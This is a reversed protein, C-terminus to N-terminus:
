IDNYSIIFLALSYFYHLLPTFFYSVAFLLPRFVPPLVDKLGGPKYIFKLGHGFVKYGKQLFDAPEWGSQHQDYDGHSINHDYPFFGNTTAIIIRKRALKELRKILVLAQQKPIHEVTQSCLVVDFKERPLEESALDLRILRKYVNRTTAQDLDIQNIDIGTVEHQHRWNIWAMLHGDGCGVDVVTSGAPILRRIESPYTWPLSYQIKNIEDLVVAKIKDAVNASSFLRLIKQDDRPTALKRSEKRETLLSPLHKVVWIFARPRTAALPANRLAITEWVMSGFYIIFTGPLFTLLLNLPYNRIMTALRNKNFHWRVEVRVEPSLDTSGRKHYCLAQPIRMITFGRSQLRLALDMDEYGIGFYPAYGGIRVLVSKRFICASGSASLIEEEKDFQGEDKVKYGITVPNGFVDMSEGASDIISRDFYWLLKGQALALKPYKKFATILKLFYKKEIVLDNNFYAVYDGKSAKLGLNLGLSYMNVRNRIIKFRPNKGIVKKAVALSDDTSANDVLIIEYNPYDIKKFSELCEELVNLKAGNYNSVVISVEPWTSM